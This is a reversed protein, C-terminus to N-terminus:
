SHCRYLGRGATRCGEKRPPTGRTIVLGCAALDAALASGEGPIRTRLPLVETFWRIRYPQLLGSELRESGFYNLTGGSSKGAQRIGRAGERKRRGARPSNAKRERSNAM